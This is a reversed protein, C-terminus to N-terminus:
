PHLPQLRSYVNHILTKARPMNDFFKGNELYPYHEKMASLTPEDNNAAGHLITKFANASDESMADRNNINDTEVNVRNNAIQGATAACLGALPNTLGLMAGLSGSIRKGMEPSAGTYQAAGDGFTKTSFTNYDVVPAAITALPRLLEGVSGGPLNLGWPKGTFVKGALNATGNLTAAGFGAMGVRNVTSDVSNSIMPSPNGDTPTVPNRWNAQLKDFEPSGHASSRVPPPALSASTLPTNGIIGAADKPTTVGSNAGPLKLDGGTEPKTSRLLDSTLQGGNLLKDALYGAGLAGAGVAPGAWWKQTWPTDKPKNQAQVPLM